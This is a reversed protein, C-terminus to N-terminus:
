VCVRESEREKERERECVSIFISEEIYQRSSCANTSFEKVRKFDAQINQSSRIVHRDTHTNGQEASPASHLRTGGSFVDSQCM